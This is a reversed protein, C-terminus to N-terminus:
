TMRVHILTLTKSSTVNWVPNCMDIRVEMYEDINFNIEENKLFHELLYYKAQTVNPLNQNIAVILYM